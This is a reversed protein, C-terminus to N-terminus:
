YFRLVFYEFIVWILIVMTLQCCYLMLNYEIWFSNYVKCIMYHHLDKLKRKVHLTLWPGDVVNDCPNMLPM